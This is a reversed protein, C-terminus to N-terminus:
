RAACGALSALRRVGLSRAVKRLQSRTAAFFRGLLRGGALKRLRAQRNEASSGLRELIAGLEASIVAKCERFLRGTYNSWSCTTAWRSARSCGKVRRIPRKRRRHITGIPTSRLSPRLCIV